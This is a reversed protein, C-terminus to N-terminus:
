KRRRFSFDFISKTKRPAKDEIKKLVLKGLGIVSFTLITLVLALSAAKGWFGEEALNLIKISALPTKFSVLFIVASMTGVGRVFDYLFSSFIGGKSIPLLVTFLLQIKNAGLSIAGDDMTTKIQSFVSSMIRYSFPLFGVSIAIVIMASSNRFNLAGSALSFALGFLSGPVAAPIQVLVDIARKMCLNTRQVIFSSLCAIFTSILAGCLAFSVSNKLEASYRLVNKMHELTFSTEIGWLKQFAGFIIAVFQLIVSLSIVACFATLFIRTALSSKKSPLFQTKGGITAFKALNNKMLRNQLVFLIISPVLIVLGIAASKGANMWGTLQTYIEVALVKFRGAVIMPNGFDSLVSVAIFLLASLIGSFSLPLTITFFIRLRSAGMGRAAQEYNPNIGQLTQVCIMYSIPFFCLVQSILLGWFGYLSVDLGFITKTIFGQRGFLLIFSLGGVFPPTVLHVIPVLSFFKAFPIDGKVVAYAFIYGIIVSLTTSSVCELATNRMAEHWVKSFLVEKIDDATVSLAVCVLPFAICVAAYLVTLTWFFSLSKSKM